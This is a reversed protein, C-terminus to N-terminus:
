LLDQVKISKRVANSFGENFKFTVKPHPRMRKAAPESSTEDGEVGLVNDAPLARVKASAGKAAVPRGFFDKAAPTDQANGADNGTQGSLYNKTLQAGHARAKGSAALAEAKAKEDRAFVVKGIERALYHRVAFGSGGSAGKIRPDLAPPPASADAAGTLLAIDEELGDVFDDLPPETRYVTHGAENKDQVFRIGLSLMVEVAHEAAARESPVSIM